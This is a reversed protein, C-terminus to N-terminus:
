FITSKTCLTIKLFGSTVASEWILHILSKQLYNIKVQGCYETFSM